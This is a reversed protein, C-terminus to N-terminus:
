GCILCGGSISCCLLILLIVIILFLIPGAVSVSILWDSIAQDIPKKNCTCNDLTYTDDILFCTGSQYSNNRIFCCDSAVTSYLNYGCTTSSVACGLNTSQFSNNQLYNYITRNLSLYIMFDGIKSCDSPLYNLFNIQQSFTYNSLSTHNLLIGNIVTTYVPPDTLHIDSIKTISYTTFLTQNDIPTLVSNSFPTFAKFHTTPPCSFAISNSLSTLSYSTQFWIHSNNYFIPVM